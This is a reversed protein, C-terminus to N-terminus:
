QETEPTEEKQELEAEYIALRQILRRIRVEQKSRDINMLLIKVFLMLIAIFFLFAPPYSVGLLHIAKDSLQPFLSFLLIGLFVTMWWLAYRIYLSNKRILYLIVIVAHASITIVQCPAVFLFHDHRGRSPYLHLQLVEDVEALLVSMVVLFFTARRLSLKSSSAVSNPLTLLAQLMM